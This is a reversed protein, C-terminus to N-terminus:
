EALLQKVVETIRQDAADVKIGKLITPNKIKESVFEIEGSTKMDSGTILVLVQKGSFDQNEVYAFLPKSVQGAYVPSALIIIDYDVLNYELDKRPHNLTVQNGAEQFTKAALNVAKKTLGMRSEQYLILVRKGSGELVQEKNAQEKQNVGAFLVVVLVICGIVLLLLLGLVKFIQKVVNM